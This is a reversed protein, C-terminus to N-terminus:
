GVIQTIYFAWPEVREYHKGNSEATVNPGYGDEKWNTDQTAFGTLYTRNWDAFVCVCM